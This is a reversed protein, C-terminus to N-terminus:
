VSLFDVNNSALRLRVYGSWKREKTHPHPFFLTQHLYYIMMTPRDRSQPSEVTCSRSQKHTHIVHKALQQTM